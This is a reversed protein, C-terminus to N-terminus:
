WKFRDVEDAYLVDRPSYDKLGGAIEGPQLRRLSYVYPRPGRVLYTSGTIQFFTGEYKITYPYKWNRKERCSLIKLDCSAGGATVEDVVLPLKPRSAPRTVVSVLSELIGFVFVGHIEGATLAFYARLLGEFAVYGVVVTFLFAQPRTWHVGIDGNFWAALVLLGFVAVIGGSIVTGPVLFGASQSFIAERWGKPLLSVFPGIFFRTGFDMQGANEKMENLTSVPQASGRAPAPEDALRLGQQEIPQIRETEILAHSPDYEGLGRAIEGPPLRRLTYVIPRPGVKINREGVVQFYGGGYRITFPYKWEPKVRSAAIQIENPDKGPTVEDRVLPLEPKATGSAIKCYLFYPAALFITGHAEGSALSGVARALGELALYFVLWTVPNMAFGALGVLGERGEPINGASSNQALSQGFATVFYSYWWILLPFFGGLELLGSFFGAAGWKVPLWRLHEKRWRLPLFALIPGLTYTWV